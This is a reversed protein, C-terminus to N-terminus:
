IHTFNQIVIEKQLYKMLFSGYGNNKESGQIDGIHVYKFKKGSKYHFDSYVSSLIGFNWDPRFKELKNFMIYLSSGTDLKYLLIWEDKIKELGIVKCSKGRFYDIFEKLVM